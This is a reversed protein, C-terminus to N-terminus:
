ERRLEEIIELIEERCAPPAYVAGWGKMLQYLGNYASDHYSRLLFPTGNQKLVEELIQAEVENYIISIKEFAEIKM